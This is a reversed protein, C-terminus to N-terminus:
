LVAIPNVPSGTGGIVRLPAALFLFEWRSKRECAAVLGEVQLYDLLHVGMANLALTHIPFDIGETTSPTTDSNGDSGLAAIRREALFTACSPHLGAKAVDSDWPGLEAHRQTHGTRVLLIAGEQVTVGQKRECGDLEDPYVHEGPELWRVGRLAPVDLLVGRGVLGQKLAGIDDDTAGEHTLSATPRGNYLSGDFAVHCFADIHTHSPNHYDAGVYDKAFRLTGSGVDEDGMMTMHHDAPAPNDIGPRTDLPLSLTVTEGTRVLKAADLVRAPTLYNLAGREDDAGWRGWTSVAEFLQRFEAASLEDERRKVRDSM